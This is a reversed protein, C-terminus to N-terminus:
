PPFTEVIVAAILLEKSGDDVWPEAVADPDMAFADPKGVFGNMWKWDRSNAVFEDTDGESAIRPQITLDAIQLSPDRLAFGDGIARWWPTDFASKPM